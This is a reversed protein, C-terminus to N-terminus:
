SVAFLIWVLLGIVIFLFLRQLSQAMWLESIEAKLGNVAQIAKEQSLTAHAALKSLTEALNTEKVKM